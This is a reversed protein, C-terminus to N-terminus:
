RSSALSQGNKAIEGIESLHNNWWEITRNLGLQLDYKPRWGVEDNLRITEAVLLPPEGVPSPIAGWHVLDPRNLQQVIRQVVERLTVPLGSAINVPGAVDSELLTVFANAVDEVFLFDRIQNGHSCVAPEGRLVSRVVSSVLRASHEHPGYLLFVRGWASSLGTEVSHAHLVNQLANKCTGYLTAPAIPTVRESCYGFRWDYEACTGAMVVREGGQEAFEQLLHLSAQLWRLNDPHTWYRGPEAYWALHLLHSPQVKAILEGGQKADLLDTQHWLINGGIDRQARTSVAHIELDDRAALLSLCYRGIFGTAGTLLVRKM